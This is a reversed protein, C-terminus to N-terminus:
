SGKMGDFGTHCSHIKCMGFEVALPHYMKAMKPVCSRQVSGSSVSEM